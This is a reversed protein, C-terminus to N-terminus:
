GEAPMLRYVAAGQKKGTHELMVQRGDITFRREVAGAITEGLRVRQSQDNGRGLSRPPDVHELLEWLDRTKVERDGYQKWWAEVFEGWAASERDARDYFRARNDLFGEVGAVALIGGMAAAWSEYSGLSASGEPRGARDWARLLTLAAQLLRGRHEVVWAGLRPHHFETREWPREVKPDLRISVARRAMENSVAPNNGTAAWACRIPVTVNESSGLLRDEWVRATLAASLAASDLKYRLNDIAIIDPARLLTSTLRKRWEDENSAETLIAPPSGGVLLGLTELLLSAGTGPSPKEILHLPTPGDILERAFPLLYLALINARDAPDVFPFDGLLDGLLLDRAQHVQDVSPADPVPPMEAGPVCWTKTEAEYGGQDVIRGSPAMIPSRVIRSLAPLRSLDGALIVRALPLPPYADMQVLQGGIKRWTYWRAARALEERLGDASLRRLGVEGDTERVMVLASGLRLLRPPSGYAELADWTEELIDRLDAASAPLAPRTDKKRTAKDQGTADAESSDPPVWSRAELVMQRVEVEGWLGLADVCDGGEPLGDSPSVVCVTAAVGALSRLVEDAFKQGPADNDGWVVVPLDRLSDAYHPLWAGSGCACTTATLGVGVLADACKEGEVVVVPEGEELEPLRYLIRDEARIGKPKIRFSKPKGGGESRAVTYRLDGARDLYEYRATVRRPGELVPKPASGRDDAGPEGPLSGGSGGAYEEVVRKAETLRVGDLEEVLGFVDVGKEGFCGQSWCKFNGKHLQFSPNADGNSHREPHPCRGKGHSDLVIGYRSRAFAAADVRTKLETLAEGVTSRIM